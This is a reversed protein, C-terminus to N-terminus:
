SGGGAGSHCPGRCVGSAFQVDQEVDFAAPLERHLGIELLIARLEGAGEATGGAVDRELARHHTRRELHLELDLRGLALPTDDHRALQARFSTCTLGREGSHALRIPFARAGLLTRFTRRIRYTIFGDNM